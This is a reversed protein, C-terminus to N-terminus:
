YTRPEQELEVGFQNQVRQRIMAAFDVVEEGTAGGHNVLVLAQHQYTGVNGERFGRMGAKDILWGAALKWNNGVPYAVVEPYEERLSRLKESSVLPNKFFSGANGLDEPDPLKQERIDCVAQSIDMATVAQGQLRENLLAELHGYKLNPQLIADLRFNVSTIIYQDRLKNKFVSDRYGFACDSASFQVQEGTAVCIAELSAFYDKVEVGYAGINQIPAAGVTGPILSLNELGSANEGLTWRVFEHWNEGAGATVTVFQEDRGLVECGKIDIAVVLGDVHNKFVVNSGGGLPVVNLQQERAFQLAARLEDVAAVSVFFRAKAKLGLTNLSDLPHNEIIKEFLNM